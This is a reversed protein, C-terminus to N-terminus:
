RGDGAIRGMSWVQRLYLGRPLLLEFSVVEGFSVVKQWAASLILECEALM